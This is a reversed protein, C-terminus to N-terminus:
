TGCPGDIRPSFAAREMLLETGCPGRGMGARIARGSACQHRVVPHDLRGANESEASPGPTHPCVPPGHAVRSRGTTTTHAWSGVRVPCQESAYIESM